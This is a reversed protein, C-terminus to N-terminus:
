VRKSARRNMYRNYFYNTVLIMLFLVFLDLLFYLTNFGFAPRHGPSFKGGSNTYFYLPFGIETYGDSAAEDHFYIWLLSLYLLTAIFIPIFKFKM